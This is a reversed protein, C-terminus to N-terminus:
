ETLEREQIANGQDPGQPWGIRRPKGERLCRIADDLKRPVGVTRLFDGGTGLPLVGIEARNALDAALLGTAIESLTGDGGAVVVREVGDLVGERVIREADRPARTQEVELEGLADRLKREISAWRRGTAGNRSFPNM